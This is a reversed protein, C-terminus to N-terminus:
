VSEMDCTTVAVRLPVASVTGGDPRIYYFGGSAYEHIDGVNLSYRLWSDEDSSRQGELWTRAVEGNAVIGEISSPDYAHEVRCLWVIQPETTPLEVATHMLTGKAPQDVVRPRGRALAM